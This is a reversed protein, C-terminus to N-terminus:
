SENARFFQKLEFTCDSSFLTMSGDTGRLIATAAEIAQDKDQFVQNAEPAGVEAVKWGEGQPLILLNKMPVSILNGLRRQRNTRGGM